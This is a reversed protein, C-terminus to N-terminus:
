EENERFKGMRGSGSNGSKNLDILHKFTGVSTEGAPFCLLADPKELIIASIMEATKVSLETYDKYIIQKM